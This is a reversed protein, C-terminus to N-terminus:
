LETYPTRLTKLCDTSLDFWEFLMDLSGMSLIEQRKALRGITMMAVSFDVAANIREIKSTSNFLRFEYRGDYGSSESYIHSFNIIHYRDNTNNSSRSAEDITAYGKDFTRCWQGMSGGNRGSLEIIDDEFLIGMAILNKITQSDNNLLEEAVDPKGSITVHLGVTDASDTEGDHDEVSSCFKRMVKQYKRRFYKIGLKPTICEVGCNISGDHEFFMESENEKAFEAIDAVMGDANDVEVEIELGIDFTNDNLQRYHSDEAGSSHYGCIMGSGRNEEYCDDCYADEHVTHCRDLHFIEGCDDCCFYYNYFCDDCIIDGHATHFYEDSNLDIEVGCNDCSDTRVEQTM